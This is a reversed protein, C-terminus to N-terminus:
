QTLILKPSKGNEVKVRTALLGGQYSQVRWIVSTSIYYEGDKVDEFQFEGQADCKTSRSHERYEPIDPIFKPRRNLALGIDQSVTFNITPEMGYLHFVRDSAYDTVPVMVVDQGACTVVGGGRQRLFATGSIKGAGSAIQARAFEANFNGNIGYVPEAPQMTVCGTLGTLLAIGWLKKM